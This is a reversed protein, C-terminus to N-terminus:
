RRSDMLVMAKWQWLSYYIQIGLPVKNKLKSLPAIDIYSWTVNDRMTQIESHLADDISAKNNARTIVHVGTFTSIERVFNWGVGPESSANPECGYAILLVDGTIKNDDKKNCTNIM